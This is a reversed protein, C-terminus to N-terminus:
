NSCRQRKYETCFIREVSLGKRVREALTGYPIGTLESWEAVTKREGKYEIYLNRRTNNNQQKVTVWRCNQPEYNGNVNIRDLTLKDSYGNKYAWDRFRVFGCDKDLWETCVKIGRGGYNSYHQEKPNLCRSKMSEFIHFIRSYSDNHKTHTERVREKAYCGCSVTGRWM